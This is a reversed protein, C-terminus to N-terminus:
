LLILCRDLNIVPRRLFVNVRRDRINFIFVRRRLLRNVFCHDHPRCRRIRRAIEALGHGFGIEDAIRFTIVQHFHRDDRQYGVRHIQKVTFRADIDVTRIIVRFVAKQRVIHSLSFRPLARCMECQKLVTCGGVTGFDADANM